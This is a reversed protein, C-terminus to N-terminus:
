QAPAKTAPSASTKPAATASPKTVPTGAHHFLGLWKGDRNSWITSHREGGPAFGPDKVVYTVIAADADLKLSQWDSLVAKSADFQRVGEITGSTTSKAHAAEILQPGAIRLADYNKSKVIGCWSKRQLQIRATTVANPPSAATSDLTKPMPKAPRIATQGVSMHLNYGSNTRNM